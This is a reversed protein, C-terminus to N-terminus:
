TRAQDALAYPRPLPEGLLSGVEALLASRRFPKTLITTQPPLVALGDANPYGTILLSKLHPRIQMAQTILEVGSLGPMAFDTVLVDIYPNRAILRLAEDGNGAKQVTFGANALFAGVTVLVDTVDDVVLVHHATSHAGTPTEVSGEAAIDLGAKAPDQDAPVLGYAMLLYALQLSASQMAPHQNTEPLVNHRGIADTAMQLARPSGPSLLGTQAAELREASTLRLAFAVAAKYAEHDEAERQEALADFHAGLAELAQMGAATRAAAAMQRLEAAGTRLERNTYESLPVKATKTTKGFM